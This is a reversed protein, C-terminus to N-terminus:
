RRHGRYEDHGRYGWGHDRHNHYGGYGPVRYTNHYRPARYYTETYCGTMIFSLMLLAATLFKM